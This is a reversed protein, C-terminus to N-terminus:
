DAAPQGAPDSEEARTGDATGEGSAAPEGESFGGAAATGGLMVAHATIELILQQAHATESMLMEVARSEPLSAGSCEAISGAFALCDSAARALQAVAKLSEM